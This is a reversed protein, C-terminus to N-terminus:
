VYIQCIRTENLDMFRRRHSQAHSRHFKSPRRRCCSRRRWLSCSGCAAPPLSFKLVYLSVCFCGASLPSRCSSRSHRSFTRVYQSPTHALFQHWISYVFFGLLVKPYAAHADSIFSDWVSLSSVIVDVHFCYFPVFLQVDSFCRTIKFPM